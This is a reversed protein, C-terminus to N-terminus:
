DGIGGTIRAVEERLRQVETRLQEVYAHLSANQSTLAATQATFEIVAKNLTSNEEELMIVRKECAEYFPLPVFARKTALAFVFVLLFALLAFPGFFLPNLPDITM